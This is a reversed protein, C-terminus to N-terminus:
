TDKKHSKRYVLIDELFYKWVATVMAQNTCTFNKRIHNEFFEEPELGGLFSCMEMYEQFMKDAVLKYAADEARFAKNDM